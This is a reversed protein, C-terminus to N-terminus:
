FSELGGNFAAVWGTERERERIKCGWVIIM